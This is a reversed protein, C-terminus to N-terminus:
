KADRSSDRGKEIYSILDEDPDFPPPPPDSQAPAPKDSDPERDDVM